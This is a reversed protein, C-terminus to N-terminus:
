SSIQLQSSWKQQGRPHGELSYGVRPQTPEPRDLAPSPIPKGLLVNRLTDFGHAPPKSRHHYPKTQAVDVSVKATEEFLRARYVM